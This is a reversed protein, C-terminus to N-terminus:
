ALGIRENVYSPSEIAHLDIDLPDKPVVSDKFRPMVEKVFLDFSKRTIRQRDADYLGNNFGLILNGLGIDAYSQLRAAITDPSGWLCYKNYYAPDNAPPRKRVLDPAVGILQEASRIYPWQRQNFREHGDMVTLMDIKAQEDTDAIFIGQFADSTWEMCRAVVDPAHKAAALAHRYQILANWGNFGSVMVPWGNQAARLTSAERGAVAVLLPRHERYPSPVIRELVTGKYVPTEFHVPPDSPRKAWLREAIDLTEQMMHAIQYNFDLGFGLGEAVHLGSGLGFLVKGKAMHDLMNMQEVLHVPHHNPVVCVAMGLWAQRLQPALYALTMFPTSAIPSYGQFHHEPVFVAAFGAADAELSQEVVTEIVAQDQTADWTRLLHAISFRM